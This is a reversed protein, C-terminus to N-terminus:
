FTDSPIIAADVTDFVVDAGKGQTWNLTEQVFDQERYEIIKEAGLGHVLGVNEENGVTAAINAGLHHALQLAVHGVGGAAAHILITQGAQLNAREVLAEWAALLVLPLAASEELSLILLDADEPRTRHERQLLTKLNLLNAGLPQYAREYADMLDYARRTTRSAAATQVLHDRFALDHAIVTDGLTLLLEKQETRMAGGQIALLSERLRELHSFYTKVIAQKSNADVPAFLTKALDPPASGEQPLLDRTALVSFGILVFAAFIAQSVRRQLGRM